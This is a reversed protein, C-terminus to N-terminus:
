IEDDIEKFTDPIDAAPAAAETVAPSKKTFLSKIKARFAYGFFGIGAIGGILMQIIISGTGPDIYM